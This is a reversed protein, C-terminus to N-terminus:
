NIERINETVGFYCISAMVVNKDKLTSFHVLKAVVMVVNNQVISKNDQAKTYFSFKNVDFNPVHVLWKITEFITNDNLNQSKFWNLIKQQTRQHDIKQKNLSKDEEFHKHVGVSKTAPMYNTCFEIAEETIYREVISAKPRHPSKVHSKLIKIYHEVLYMRWLFVLGCLRIDRVLYVVLYVMIDFFSPPFYM